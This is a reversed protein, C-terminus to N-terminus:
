SVLKSKFSKKFYSGDYWFIFIFCTYKKFFQIKRLTKYNTYTNSNPIRGLSCGLYIPSLWHRHYIPVREIEPPTNVINPPSRRLRPEKCTSCVAIKLPNNIHKVPKENPFALTLPYIRDEENQIWKVSKPFMLISCFSCPVSPFQLLIKEDFKKQLSQLQKNPRWYIFNLNLQFNEEENIIPMRSHNMNQIRRLEAGNWISGENETNIQETNFDNLSYNIFRIAM